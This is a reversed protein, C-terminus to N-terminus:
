ERLIGPQMAADGDDGPPGGPDASRTGKAQSDLARVDYDTIDILRARLSYRSFDFVSAPARDRDSGIDRAFRGKLAQDSPGDGCEASEVDEVVVGGREATCRDAAVPSDFGDFDIDPISRHRDVRATDHNSALM